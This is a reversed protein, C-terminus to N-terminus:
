LRTGLLATGGASPTFRVAYGSGAVAYGRGAEATGDDYGVEVRLPAVQATTGRIIARIMVKSGVPLVPSWDPVSCSSNGVTSTDLSIWPHTEAALQVYGVYFDKSLTLGYGSLDVEFWGEEAPTVEIPVIVDKRDADWVHVEIPGPGGRLGAIYFKARLLAAGAPPSAFRVAFGSGATAFARSSEAAGDDCALETEDQALGGVALLALVLLTICWKRTGREMKQAM